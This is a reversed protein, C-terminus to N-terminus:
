CMAKQKNIIKDLNQVTKDIDIEEQAIYSGYIDYQEYFLRRTNEDVEVRPIQAKRFMMAKIRNKRRKITNTLKRM